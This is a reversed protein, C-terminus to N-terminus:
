KPLANNGGGYIQFNREQEYQMAYMRSLRDLTERGSSSMRDYEWFLDSIDEITYKVLEKFNKNEEILKNMYELVEDKQEKKTM